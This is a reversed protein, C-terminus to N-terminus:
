EKGLYCVMIYEENNEDVKRFGVKEYMRVAYNSKQVALSAKKFGQNKLHELMKKMLETGIGKGRYEQILSIAFSPTQSDVHGYDEMIRTWVAGVVKGDDEAVFCHDAEGSGFDEYYLKLEPREIIDKPPPEMGEPIFIAEYLFDQLLVKENDRMERIVM